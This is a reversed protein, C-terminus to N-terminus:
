KGNQFEGRRAGVSVSLAMALTLAASLSRFAGVDIESVFLRAGDLRALPSTPLDTLAVIGVDRRKAEEALEVTDATYPAFSIAIMADEPVLLHDLKLNGVGSHLIAPIGMKEFSYALYSAVPFARRNGVLHITRAQALMTVAEDLVAADVTRALNEISNRGAEAFEALLAAPTDNGSDRLKTLRTAYNPWKQTYEERFLKQMQSFGSFGLEQCFRMFASPPVDAAEALEAVTSVAVKDPNAAVYDACQRLRKPLSHGSERLREYFAEVTHPAAANEQNM